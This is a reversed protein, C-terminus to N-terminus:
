ALAWFAFKDHFFFVMWYRKLELQVSGWESAPYLSRLHEKDTGSLGNRQGLRGLAVSGDLPELTPQGNGSFAYADYHMISDFDYALGQTSSGGAIDFNDKSGTNPIM